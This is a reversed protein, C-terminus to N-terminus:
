TAKRLLPLPVYFTLYTKGDSYEHGRPHEVLVTARKVIRNVRGVHRDGEHEFSVLDGVVIGHKVAAQERPTVLDHHVAQHAFIQRSLRQFTEGACSSAGWGLNEALHLLEHEFIRQLAELRDRVLLGSVTVPRVPERFTGFLLTTSITITYDTRVVFGSLTPMKHRRRTTTGASRTLRGSLRLGIPDALDERLMRSLLGDFFSRDYLKHLVLLDHLGITTFNGTRIHESSNLLTQYIATTKRAVEEAPHELALLRAIREGRAPSPHGPQETPRPM